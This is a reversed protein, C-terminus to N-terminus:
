RSNNNPNLGQLASSTKELEQLAGEMVGYKKRLDQEIRVLRRNYNTIETDTRGIERDITSMKLAIIGGTENYARLFNDIEFAVGSDIIMDSDRDFGFLHKISSANRELEADLKREDIELYGRLKTISSGGTTGTNTSIGIQALLTLFDDDNWRYPASMIRVLRDRMQTISSETSLKGMRERAAEREADSFYTIENIIEENNRSLINLEAILDNYNGVLSIISEKINKLDPEIKIDINKTSPSKLNLTIGPILDDITNTPRVIRIGDMDIVADAAKSAPNAPVISGREEPNYIRIDSITIEKDTNRNRINISAFPNAIQSLPIQIKQTEESDQINALREIRNGAGLFLVSM